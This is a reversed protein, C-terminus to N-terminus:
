NGSFRKKSEAQEKEASKGEKTGASKPNKKEEIEVKKIGPITEKVTKTLPEVLPAVQKALEKPLRVKLVDKELVAEAKDKLPFFKEALAQAKEQAEKMERLVKLEYEVTKGALDNNLDIRVRGGSVTQVRGYGGNLDVILGPVPQIQRKRFEQLPIVVVLEKRRLGFAKEPALTIKKTEGERMEKLAEDIGELVDRNGVIVPVPRFVGNERYLGHEKATKESTTDFVRGSDTERGTFEILVVSKEKM